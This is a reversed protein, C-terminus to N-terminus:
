THEESRLPSRPPAPRVSPQRTVPPSLVPPRPSPLHAQSPRVPKAGHCPVPPCLAATSISTARRQHRQDTQRLPRAGLSTSALLTRSPTGAAKPTEQTPGEARPPLRAPAGGGGLPPPDRAVAGGV